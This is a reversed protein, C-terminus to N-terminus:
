CSKLGFGAALQQRIHRAVQEVTGSASIVRCRQRNQEAIDLFAQRLNRHFSQDMKEFRDERHQVCIAAERQTARDLGQAPDADLVLTLDPWFDGTAIRHIDLIVGAALGHGAGQYAITSDAYRDSIVWTGRALAPRVTRNLHDVRAAYFLLVETMPDWKDPSGTVLLRRIEEAGPAGGPERTLIVRIGQDELYDRLLCAQTSKGVGEGGELSIFKGPAVNNKNV